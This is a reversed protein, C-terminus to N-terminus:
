IASVGRTARFIVVMHELVAFHRSVSYDTLSSPRGPKAPYEHHEDSGLLVKGSQKCKSPLFGDLVSANLDPTASRYLPDPDKTLGFVISPEEAPPQRAQPQEVVEKRVVQAYLAQVRYILKGLVRSMTEFGASAARALRLTLTDDLKGEEEDEEQEKVPHRPADLQPQPAITTTTDVDGLNGMDTITPLDLAPRTAFRPLEEITEDHEIFHRVVNAHQRAKANDVHRQQGLLEVATTDQHEEFRDVFKNFCRDLVLHDRLEEVHQERLMHDVHRHVYKSLHRSLLKDERFVEARQGLCMNKAKLEAFKRRLKNMAFSKLKNQAIEEAEAILDPRTDPEDVVIPAPRGQAPRRATSERALTSIAFAMTSMPAGGQKPRVLPKGSSTYGVVDSKIPWPQQRFSHSSRTAPAQQPLCASSTTASAQQPLRAPRVSQPSSLNRTM